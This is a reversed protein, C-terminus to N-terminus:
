VIFAPWMSPWGDKPLVVNSDYEAHYFDRLAQSPDAIVDDFDIAIIM